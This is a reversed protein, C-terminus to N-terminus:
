LFFDTFTNVTYEFYFCSLSKKFHSSMQEPIIAFSFLLTFPNNTVGSHEPPSSWNVVFADKCLACPQLQVLMMGKSPKHFARPLPLAKTPHQGREGPIGVTSHPLQSRWGPINFHRRRGVGPGEARVSQFHPMLLSFLMQFVRQM